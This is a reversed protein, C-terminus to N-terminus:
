KIANKKTSPRRTAKKPEEEKIVEEKKIVSKEKIDTKSKGYVIEKLKDKIKEKIINPNSILENTFEDSLFEIISIDYSDEMMEIFDIRPIKNEIDFSINFDVNRKTKKFMSIIPDDVIQSIKTEFPIQDINNISIKTNIQPINIHKIEEPIEIEEEGLLKAFANNQREVDNQVGLHSYKKAIEERERDEANEDYIIASETIAPKLSRDPSNVIIENNVGDQDTMNSVHDQPIQKIKDALINYTNQDNFFSAPDIDETYLNIDLLKKVSIKDKSELIAIDEFSDIVKLKQGTKNEVFTRNALNM